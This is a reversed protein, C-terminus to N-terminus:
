ERIERGTIAIFADDMTGNAVEVNTVHSKCRELIAISDVTSKLKIIFTHGDETFSVSNENLIQRLENPKNSQIKLIDSCYAQKIETPTGQAAIKGYDIVTIYDANAAEEMYHTTLFVTMDTEQQLKRVTEWINQRTQPDLGTTPEDLFLIKPSHILARAIDARRKQGGSLSGYRRNEFERISTADAAKDYAAALASKSHGYFSGRIFLNEKVTLLQDLNSEQFVVGISRRIDADNKSLKHGNIVVNGSDSQLLTCLISITTSKGAGNPGLFAFLSGKKVEFSIDQVAKVSGYSKVLNEVLISM